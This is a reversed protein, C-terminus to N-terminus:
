GRPGRIEGVVKAPAAPPAIVVNVRPPTLSKKNAFGIFVVQIITALALVGLAVDFVGQLRQRMPESWIALGLLVLGVLSTTFFGSLKGFGTPEIRVPGHFVYLYFTGAVLIAYRGVVLLAVWWPVQGVQALTVFVTVNFVIDVLPDLVKGTRSEMGLARALVGDLVDTLSSAAFVWV